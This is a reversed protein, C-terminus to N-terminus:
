TAVHPYTFGLFHVANVAFHTLIAAEIRRTVAYAISYGVGAITALVVYTVGAGTHAVGFLLSAIAIAVWHWRPALARMLREQCLGRFFAEEAVCTFLLNVALFMAAFAPLKPDWEIYGVSTAYLFVAAATVGAAGLTPVVVRRGDVISTVRPCFFALLLLGAAGKDFNAYQTFAVANESVQVNDLIVPNNFGPLAHLALALAILGALVILAMSAPRPRVRQSWWSTGALLALAILAPWTLIGYYLGSAIAAVFAVGWPRLRLRSSLAFSPAWVACISLGLLAYTLLM